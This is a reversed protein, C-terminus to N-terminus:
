SARAARHAKRKDVLMDHYENMADDAMIESLRERCRDMASERSMPKSPVTWSDVRYWVDKGGHQFVHFEREGGWVFIIMEERDGLMVHGFRSLIEFMTMDDDASKGKAM